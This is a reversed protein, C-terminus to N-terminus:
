PVPGGPALGPCGGGPKMRTLPLGISAGQTSLTGGPEGYGGLPAVWVWIPAHEPAVALRSSWHISLSSLNMVFRMFICSSSISMILSQFNAAMTISLNQKIVNVANVTIVVMATSNDAGWIMTSYCYYAPHTFPGLHQNRSISYSLHFYAHGVVVCWSTAGILSKLIFFQCTLTTKQIGEKSIWPLILRPYGLFIKLYSFKQM